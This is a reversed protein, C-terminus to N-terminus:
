GTVTIRNTTIGLASSLLATIKEKVTIDNGGTCVVAVGRVTPNIEQLKLGNEGESNTFFVYESSGSLQNQAYVTEGNNELTILVSVQDIGNIELILKEVREELEKSYYSIQEGNEESPSIDTNSLLVLCIGLVALIGYFWKSKLINSIKSM